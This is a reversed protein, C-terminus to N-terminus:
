DSACSGTYSATVISGLSYPPVLSNFEEITLAQGTIKNLQYHDHPGTSNGTSGVYGVLTGRKVFGNPACSSYSVMHESMSIYNGSNITIYLAGNVVGRLLQGDQTAYIPIGQDNAIDISSAIITGACHSPNCEYPGQSIWGSNPWGSPIFADGSLGTNANNQYYDWVSQCYSNPDAGGVTCGSGYYAGAAAYVDAKDWVIKNPDVGAATADTRLKKAGAYLADMINQVLTVRNSSTAENVANKYSSWVDLTLADPNPCASTGGSGTLFQMPGVAGCENPTSNIPDMGGETVGFQIIQPDSYGFVHPGELLLVGALVGAPMKFSISAGELIKKLEQSCSSGVSLGLCFNPVLGGGAPPAAEASQPVGGFMTMFVIVVIIVPLIFLLVVAALVVGGVLIAIKKWNRGIASGAAAGVATGVGPAVSGAAAGAGAATGAGSATGAATGGAGAAASGAAGSGLSTGARRGVERGAAEGIGSGRDKKNGSDEKAM